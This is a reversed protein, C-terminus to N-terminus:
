EISDTFTPCPAHGYRRYHIRGPPEQPAPEPVAGCPQKDTHGDAHHQAPQRDPADLPTQHHVLELTEGTPQATAARPM